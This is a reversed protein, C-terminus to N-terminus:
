SLLGHERLWRRAATPVEVGRVDVRENLAALDATTLQASVGDLATKLRDGHRRLSTQRVIPVVHEAPQLGKDDELLVLDGDALAATTTFLIGVDITGDRLAGITYPGGADLATFSKFTLAYVRQLGAQCLPRTPCEPPGGLVLGGSIPALDSVKRLQRRESTTRTVVVANQNQARAPELAIAGRSAIRERLRALTAVGDASAEGASQNVFELATGTYEPVVDVLGQEFAPVVVERSGLGFAREVPVGKAEIAQAYLEGLVRSETFDFSGVKVADAQATRDGDEDGCGAFLLAVIASAALLRGAARTM